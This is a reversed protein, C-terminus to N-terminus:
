PLLRYRVWGKFGDTQRSEEEGRGGNDWVLSTRINCMKNRKNRKLEKM